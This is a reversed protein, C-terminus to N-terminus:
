NTKADERRKERKAFFTQTECRCPAIANDLHKGKNEELAFVKMGIGVIGVGCWRLMIETARIKCNSMTCIEHRQPQMVMILSQFVKVKEQQVTLTDRTM